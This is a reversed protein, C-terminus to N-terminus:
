KYTLFQILKFNFYIWETFLTYVDWESIKFAVAEAKANSGDLIVPM